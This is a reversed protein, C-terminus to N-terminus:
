TRSLYIRINTSATFINRHIVFSSSQISINCDGQLIEEAANNSINTTHGWVVSALIMITELLKMKRRCFFLLVQEEELRERIGIGYNINNLILHVIAILTPHYWISVTTKVTGYLVLPCSTCVPLVYYMSTPTGTTRYSVTTTQQVTTRQIM